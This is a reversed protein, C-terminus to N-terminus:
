RGTARWISVDGAIGDRVRAQIPGLRKQPAALSFIVIDKNLERNVEKLDGFSKKIIIEGKYIDISQFPLIQMFNFILAFDSYPGFIRRVRYFFSLHVRIIIS